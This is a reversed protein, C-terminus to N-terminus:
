LSAAEKRGYTAHSPHAPELHHKPHLGLPQSTGLPVSANDWIHTHTHARAHASRVEVM